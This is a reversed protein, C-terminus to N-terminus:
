IRHKRLPTGDYNVVKSLLELLQNVIELSVV